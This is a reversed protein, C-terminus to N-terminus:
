DGTEQWTAQTADAFIIKQQEILCQVAELIAFDVIAPEDDLPIQTSFDAHGNTASNGDGSDSKSDISKHDGPVNVTHNAAGYLGHSVLLKDSLSFFRSALRSNISSDTAVSSALRQPVCTDKNQKRVLLPALEMALSHADMKNLTSKQSIRLLFALLCELTSYHAYPITRLIDSLQRVNGRAEKVEDYVAYTLLPEPLMQLYTKLLSAVDNPSTGEPIIANWDEEFSSKLQQVVQQDGNDKFINESNLGFSLLYDVCNTVIQPIPKSCKQRQVLTELPVEFVAGTQGKQWREIHALINRSRQAAFKAAKEVKRRGVAVTEKTGLVSRKILNSSSAVSNQNGQITQSPQEEQRAQRLLSWRARVATGAREAVEVVGSGAEKAVEGVFIGATQTVSKLKVSSSTLFGSAKDRWQTGTAM